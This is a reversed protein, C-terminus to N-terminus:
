GHEAHACRGLVTVLGATGDVRVKDGDRLTRMASRTNIVAPIGLERAVIAGHSLPGGVDVVVAAAVLFLASWSPDSTDCVLIEGNEIDADTPDDVLRVVGEVVGHSAGLGTLTAIDADCESRQLPEPLGEWTQPLDFAQYEARRRRREAIVQRWDASRNAMLEEVTIYAIDAPDELEGRRVMDTAIVRSSARCVDITHLLAAKGTERLPFYYDTARLVARALIRHAWPLGSVLERVGVAKDEAVRRATAQPSREEPMARYSRLIAALQEPDDRWVPSSPSAEGPGHFGYRHLFSERDAAGRSVDWLMAVMEAEELSGVGAAIRLELGPLGARRCLKELQNFAAQTVFTALTHPRMYMTMRDQAEGLRRRADTVTDHELADVSERWWCQSEALIRRLRSAVTAAAWPAKVAVVPYRRWSPRSPIGERVNSFLQQELSDGSTGPTRDALSRLLDVNAVLRGCIVTCIRQDSDSSHRVAAEPLVGLTGFAGLTGVTVPRMWFSSSLPTVVGALNEEANVTTWYTAPGGPQHLPDAAVRV